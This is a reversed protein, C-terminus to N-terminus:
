ATRRQSRHIGPGASLVTEVPRRLSMPLPPAYGFRVVLDPRRGGIQLWKAFDARAAPVEVAQNIHAHRIGLATAQLAFRQYSRGADVWHRKDDADSVFVAIGASSRIQKVYKDNEGDKTFVYPFVIRALWSPMSPNGTCGSFLGDRTLLAAAPNFRIWAELEERFAPDDMQASNGDVVYETVRERGAEDTILILEVGDVRAADELRRLDGASVAGGDYESRTCQREPIAGFLETEVGGGGGLDVVVRGEGEDDFMMDATRGLARAALLFNEAACGLSAFLHHDDPDVAALRRDLDPAIVTRNDGLDFRWPQSNHSNAALTAYRAAELLPAGPELPARLKRTEADYASMDGGACGSLSVAASATGGSLVTRRTFM